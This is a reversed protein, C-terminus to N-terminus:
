GEIGGGGGDNRYTGDAPEGGGEGCEDGIYVGARWSENALM